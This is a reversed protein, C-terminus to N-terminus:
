EIHALFSIQDILRNRANERCTQAGAVDHLGAHGLDAGRLHAGGDEGLQLLQGALGGTMGPSTGPIWRDAFELALRHSSGPVLDRCSVILLLAHGEGRLPLPADHRRWDVSPGGAMLERLLPRM